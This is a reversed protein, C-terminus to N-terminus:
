VCALQRYSILQVGKQQLWDAVEPDILAGLEDSWHYGWHGYRTYPDDLGPHCMLECTGTPPLYCLLEQLHQKHLHGGFFFGTFHDTRLRIAKRGLRCFMNLVLLQFGRSVAEKGKLMYLHVREYPFRIAPIGYAKALEVTMRLIQPLMHLHQHSDLHSISVGQSMVRIIQAELEDRVERLRIQGRFYKKTFIKAHQHLNAAAGVLSPVTDASLIPPGEVLMLHIGVDLTPIARCIDIAQEFAYGNAMLSTSTLIGHRHAYLIGENVRESLGFDDAHVILRCM